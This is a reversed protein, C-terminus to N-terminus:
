PTDDDPVDGNRRGLTSAKLNKRSADEALFMGTEIHLKNYASTLLAVIDRLKEDKIYKNPPSFNDMLEDLEKMRAFLWQVYEPNRRATKIGNFGDPLRIAQQIATERDETKGKVVFDYGKDYGWVWHEPPPYKPVYSGDQPM